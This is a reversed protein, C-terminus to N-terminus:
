KDDIGEISEVVTNRVLEILTEERMPIVRLVWCIKVDEIKPLVDCNM